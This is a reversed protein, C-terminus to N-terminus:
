NTGHNNGGKQKAFRSLKTMIKKLDEHEKAIEYLKEELDEWRDNCCNYKYSGTSKPTTYGFYVGLNKLANLGNETPIIIYISDELSCEEFDANLIIANSKSANVITEYAM